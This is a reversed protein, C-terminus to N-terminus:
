AKLKINSHLWNVFLITVTEPSCPLSEAVCICTDMRGWVGRADLSGCVMSCLERHQVTPGQQNDMKFIASHVHGDWVEQRKGEDKERQIWLNMRQTKGTKYILENTDIRKLNLMYPIDYLIEGKRNPKCEAYCDRLGDM